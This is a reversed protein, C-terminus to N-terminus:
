AIGSMCAGYELGATADCTLKDCRYAHYAPMISELGLFFVMHPIFSVIVFALDLAAAVLLMLPYSVIALRLAEVRLQKQMKPDIKQLMTDAIVM